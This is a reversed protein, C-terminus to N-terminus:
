LGFFRWNLILGGAIFCLSAIALGMVELRKYELIQFIGWLYMLGGLCSIASYLLIAEVESYSGMTILVVAGFRFIFNLLTNLLLLRQSKTVTYIESLAVVVFITSNHIALAEAYVGAMQWETGFVFGFVTGGFLAVGSFIITALALMVKFLQFAKIALLEKSVNLLESAKQLFVPVIAYPILRNFVELMSSALAFQGVAHSGFKGQFFFIPINGSLTLLLASPMYYIPFNRYEHAVDKLKGINFNQWFQQLEHWKPKLSFILFGLSSIKGVFDGMILNGSYSGKTIGLIINTVRSNFNNVFGSLGNTFFKKNAVNLHTAIDIFCSLALAVPIFYSLVGIKSFEFYNSLPENFFYISLSTVLVVILTLLLSLAVLQNRKVGPEQLVISDAYKLSGVLSINIVIANFAVFVGYVDPSYIRTIIPSLLFQTIIIGSSWFSTISANRLFTGKAFAGGTIKALEHTFKM